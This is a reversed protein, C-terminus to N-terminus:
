PKRFLYCRNEISREPIFECNDMLYQVANQTEKWDCDDFWIYGGSKVKPLYDLVDAMSQIPSHNGDIHIMDVSCDEFRALADGSTARIVKCYENLKQMRIFKVFDMYIKDLNLSSWWVANPDTEDFGVVCADATWPDIAHLIGCHCYKLAAAIPYASAGGFVGIEICQAPKMDQVFDMLQEAKEKVCWGPLGQQVAITNSKFDDWAADATLLNGALLLSLAFYKRM